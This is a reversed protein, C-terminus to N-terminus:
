MPLTRQRPNPQRDELCDIVCAMCCHGVAMYIHDEGLADAVEAHIRDHDFDSEAENM